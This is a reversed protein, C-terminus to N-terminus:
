GGGLVAARREVVAPGVTALPNRRRAEVLKLAEARSLVRAGRPRPTTRTAPAPRPAKRDHPTGFPEHVARERELRRALKHVDGACIEIIGKAEAVCPALHTDLWEQARARAAPKTLGPHHARLRDAVKALYDRQRAGALLDGNRQEIDLIRAPRPSQRTSASVLQEACPGALTIVLDARLGCRAHVTEGGGDPNIAVRYVHVGLQNAAVAHGAEHFAAASPIM